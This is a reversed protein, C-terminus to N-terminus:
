VTVADRDGRRTLGRIAILAGLMAGALLGLAANRVLMRGVPREPPVAADAVLVQPTRGAAELRASGYRVAIEEYTKRAISQELALRALRSEREYLENLRALQEGGVQRGKVLQDRQHELAALAARSTAIEEDLKAYVEDVYQDTLQLGLLGNGSQGSARAAELLAPDADISRTLTGVRSRAGLDAEAQALKGREAEVEVLLKGLEERQDLLTEVDKRLLDLQAKSRYEDYAREAAALAAASEDLLLKLDREVQAVGSEDVSRALAIAREALRNAVQAALAPDDLRVVLRVFSAEPIVRVTLVQNLLQTRTLRRPPRDLGLEEIVPQVVAPSEVLTVLGMLGATPPPGQAIRPTAVLLTVSSEYQVQSVLSWTAGAAAFGVALGALLRRHRGLAAVYDGVQPPGAERLPRRPTSEPPLPTPSAALPM